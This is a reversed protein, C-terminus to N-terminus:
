LIYMANLNVHCIGKVTDQIVKEPNLVPRPSINIGLAVLHPYCLMRIMNYM